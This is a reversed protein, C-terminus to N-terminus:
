AIAFRPRSPKLAHNRRVLAADGLDLRRQDPLDNTVLTFVREATARDHFRLTVLDAM